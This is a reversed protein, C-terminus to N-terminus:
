CVRNPLNFFEVFEFDNASLDADISLEAVTPDAPHYNIESIRLSSVVPNSVTSTVTISDTSVLEGQLNYAELDFVNPGNTLPLTLLCASGANCRGPKRSLLWCSRTM